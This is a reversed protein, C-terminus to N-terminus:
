AKAKKATTLWPNTAANICKQLWGQPRCSIVFDAAEPGAPSNKRFSSAKPAPIHSLANKNKIVRAVSQPL